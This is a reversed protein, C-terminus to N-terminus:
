CSHLCNALHELLEWMLPAMAEDLQNRSCGGGRFLYWREFVRKQVSLCAEAIV